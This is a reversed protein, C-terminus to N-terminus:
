QMEKSTTVKDMRVQAWFKHEIDYLQKALDARILREHRPIPQIQTFSVRALSLAEEITRGEAILRWAYEIAWNIQAQTRQKARV